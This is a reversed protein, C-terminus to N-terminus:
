SKPVPILEQISDLNLTGLPYSMNVLYIKKQPELPRSGVYKTLTGTFKVSWGDVERTDVHFTSSVESKKITTAEDLLLPQMVHYNGSSIYNLLLGYNGGVNGPTVNYKLGLFFEAMETKYVDDAGYNSVTMSGKISPPTLTRSQTVSLYVLAATLLLLAVSVLGAYMLLLRNRFRVRDLADDRINSEM